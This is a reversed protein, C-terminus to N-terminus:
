GKAPWDIMQLPLRVGMIPVPVLAGALAPVSLVSISITSTNISQERKGTRQRPHYSFLRRRVEMGGPLPVPDRGNEGREALELVAQVTGRQTAQRASGSKVICRM